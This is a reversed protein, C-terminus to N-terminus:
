AAPEADLAAVARRDRTPIRWDRMWRVLTSRHVGLVRAVDDQSLGQREYLDRILDPVDAGGNRASVVQEARSKIRDAM